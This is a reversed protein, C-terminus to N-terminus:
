AEVADKGFTVLRKDYPLGLEKKRFEYFYEISSWPYKESAKLTRLVQELEAEDNAQKFSNDYLEYAWTSWNKIEPDNTLFERVVTKIHERILNM